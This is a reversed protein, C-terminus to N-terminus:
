RARFRRALRGPHLRVFRYGGVPRRCRRRDGVCDRPVTGRQSVHRHSLPRRRLRSLGDTGGIWLDGSRDHHVTYITSHTLGEARGYQAVSGDPDLRRVIGGSFAIWVRDADDVYTLVPWETPGNTATDIRELRGNAIRTLGQVEDCIWLAGRHDSSISTIRRLPAGGPAMSVCVGASRRQLTGRRNRGLRTRRRLHSTCPRRGDLRSPEERALAPDRRDARGAGDHHRGM